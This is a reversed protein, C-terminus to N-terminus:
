AGILSALSDSAGGHLQSILLIYRSALSNTLASPVAVDAGHPVTLYSCTFFDVLTRYRARLDAPHLVVEKAQQQSYLRVLIGRQRDYLLEPALRAKHKMIVLEEAVQRCDTLKTLV